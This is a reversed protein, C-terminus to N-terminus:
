KEASIRTEDELNIILRKFGARRLAEVFAFYFESEATKENKSMVQNLWNMITLHESPIEYHYDKRFINGEEDVNWFKFTENFVDNIKDFISYGLDEM